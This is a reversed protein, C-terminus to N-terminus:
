TTVETSGLFVTAYGYHLTAYGYGYFMTDLRADLLSVVLIAMWVHM